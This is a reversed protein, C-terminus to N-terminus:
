PIALPALRKPSHPPSLPPAPAFKSSSLSFSGCSADSGSLRNVDCCGALTSLASCDRECAREVFALVVTASFAGGFLDVRGPSVATSMSSECDVGVVTLESGSLLM